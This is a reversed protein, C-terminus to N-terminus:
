LKYDEFVYSNDLLWSIQEKISYKNSYMVNLIDNIDKEYYKGYVKEINVLYDYFYWKKNIKQKKYKFMKNFQKIYEGILINKSKEFDKNMTSKKIKKELVKEKM